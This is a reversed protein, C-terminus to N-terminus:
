RCIRALLLSRPMPYLRCRQLVQLGSMTRGPKPMFTLSNEAAFREVLQRLTFDGDADDPPQVPVAPEEWRTGPQM